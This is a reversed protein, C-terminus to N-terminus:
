KTKYLKALTEKGENARYQLYEIASHISFETEKIIRLCSKIKNIDEESLAASSKQIQRITHKMKNIRAVHRQIQEVKISTPFKNIYFDIDKQYTSGLQNLTTEDIFFTQKNEQNMQPGRPKQIMKQLYSGIKM